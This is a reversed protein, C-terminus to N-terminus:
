FTAWLGIFQGIQDCQKGIVNSLFIFSIRENYGNMIKSKLSMWCLASSFSFYCIIAENFIRIQLWPLDYVFKQSDNQNTSFKSNGISHKLILTAYILAINQIPVPGGIKFHPLRLLIQMYQYTYNLVYRSQKLSMWVQTIRQTFRLIISFERIPWLKHM